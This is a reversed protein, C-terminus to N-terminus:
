REPAIAAPHSRYTAEEMNHDEGRLAGSVNLSRAPIHEDYPLRLVQERCVCHTVLIENNEPDVNFRQGLMGPLSNRCSSWAFRCPHHCPCCSPFHYPFPFPIHLGLTRLDLTRRDLCPRSSALHIRCALSNTRYAILAITVVPPKPFVSSEKSIMSRRPRSIQLMGAHASLDEKIFPKCANHHITTHNPDKYLYV